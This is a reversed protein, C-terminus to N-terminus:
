GGTREVLYVRKEPPGIPRLSFGAERLSSELVERSADAPPRAVKAEVLAAATTQDFTYNTGGAKQALTLLERAPITPAPAPARPALCALLVAVALAFPIAYRSFFM